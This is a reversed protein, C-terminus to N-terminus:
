IYKHLHPNKKNESATINLLVAEYKWNKSIVLVIIIQIYITICVQYKNKPTKPNKKEIKSKILQIGQVKHFKLINFLPKFELLLPFFLIKVVM